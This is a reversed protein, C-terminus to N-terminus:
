TKVTKQCSQWLLDASKDWSFNQKQLNGKTILSQQLEKNNYLKLMAEKIEEINLPNVYLAADGAIEPLSTVNSAIIPTQTEMAEILPIGFGEYYPVFTLGVASGLVLNLDENSLRGTFIVDATKLISDLQNPNEPKDFDYFIPSVSKLGNELIIKHIEATGWYQSGVLVLKLNSKSEKKFLAFAKILNPINKRPILSGVNVFYDNGDTFKTKTEQKKIENAPKFFDHIGNYVVDIKNPDINYHKAIDVKSYGSVTAIRTAERAYKPFFYNYYKGTLWKLDKPHHYFNIDHLVLLQKCKAGLCLFGDPSLFLDPKLKNLLSKVSFQFWAYYLFPHRAQPSLIMPTVNDSFIFEPDFQRDFLFIFHVNPNNKTIRSLTQYTFWSIGELKDKLLLRTNVVIQM